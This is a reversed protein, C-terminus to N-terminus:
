KVEKFTKLELKAIYGEDVDEPIDEENALELGLERMYEKYNFGYGEWNDVGITQLYSLLNEAALLELLREELIIYNKGM